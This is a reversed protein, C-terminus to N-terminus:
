IFGGYRYLDILGGRAFPTGAVNGGTPSRGRGGGPRNMGTDPRDRNGYTQINQRVQQAAATQAQAERIKEIQMNKKWQAIGENTARQDIIKKGTRGYVNQYIQESTTGYPTGFTGEWNAKIDEWVDEWPATEKLARYVGPIEVILGAGFAGADGIFQNLKNPTGLGLAEARTKGAFTDSLSSFYSQHRADSAAGTSGIGYEGELRSINELDAFKSGIGYIADQIANQDLAWDYTPEFIQAM